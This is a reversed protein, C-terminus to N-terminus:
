LLSETNTSTKKKKVGNDFFALIKPDNLISDLKNKTKKILFVPPSNSDFATDQNTPQETLKLTPSDAAITATETSHFQNSTTLINESPHDESDCTNTLDVFNVVPKPTNGFFPSQTNFFYHSLDQHLSTSGKFLKKSLCPSPQITSRVPPKITPKTTEVEQHRARAESVYPHSIRRPKEFKSAASVEETPHTFITKSPVNQTTKKKKTMWSQLISPSSKKTDNKTAISFNITSKGAKFYDM